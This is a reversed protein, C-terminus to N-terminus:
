HSLQVLTRDATMWSTLKARPEGQTDDREFFEVRVNKLLQTNNPRPESDECTLEYIRLLKTRGDPLPVERTVPIQLRGRVEFDVDGQANDSMQIPSDPQEQPKGAGPETARTRSRQDDGDGILIFLAFFGATILALFLLARKIM